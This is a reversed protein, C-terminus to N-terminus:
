VILAGAASDGVGLLIKMVATRTAADGSAILPLLKDVIEIGRSAAARTLADVLMQQVSYSVHIKEDANKAFGAIRCTFFLTEGPAHEFVAPLPTGGDSQAIMPKVIELPAACALIPFLIALPISRM